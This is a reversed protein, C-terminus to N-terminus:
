YESSVMQFTVGACTNEHSNSFKKRFLKKVSFWRATLESYKWMKMGTNKWVSSNLLEHM